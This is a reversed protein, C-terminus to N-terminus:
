VRNVVALFVSYIEDSLKQGRKPQKDEWKELFDWQSCIKEYRVINVTSHYVM